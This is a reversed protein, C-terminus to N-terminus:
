AVAYSAYIVGGDDLAYSLGAKPNFFNHEDSVAYASQDDDTGATTYAVRRWQVDAFGSLRDNFRYQVKAYLNADSKDSEGMYFQQWPTQGLAFAGWVIEVFHYAPTFRHYICCFSIYANCTVHINSCTDGCFYNKFWKR